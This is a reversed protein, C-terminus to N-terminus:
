WVKWEASGDTWLKNLYEMDRITDMCEWFGIHKYVKLQGESSLKEFPGFELDCNKDVSLYEFIKRNFVFFGGNIFERSAQKPKEKFSLVQNGSIHMHGFRSSPIVGTITAIKGHEKHYKLLDILDVNALGDGYTVMFDEDEIYKAIQKLRSGKLNVEGTNALTIKWGAESHENHLCLRDERGLEITVDSNMLEYHFFYERIMEGKYGLALIFERFGFCSYYKMIHWLIPNSGIKVMPKPRFETEERIRTGLGGCLIVVKM